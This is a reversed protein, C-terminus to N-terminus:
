FAQAELKKKLHAIRKRLDAAKKGREKGSAKYCDGAYELAGVGFRDYGRELMKDAAELFREAATGYDKLLFNCEAAKFLAYYSDFFDGAELYSQSAQLFKGIAEKYNGGDCLATGERHIKIPDIKLPKDM